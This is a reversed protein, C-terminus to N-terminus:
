AYTMRDIDRCNISCYDWVGTSDYYRDKYCGTRNCRLSVSHPSTFVINSTNTSPTMFGNIKEPSEYTRKIEPTSSFLVKPSPGSKKPQSSPSNVIHLLAKNKPLDKIFYNSVEYCQPCITCKYISPSPHSYSLMCRMCVSDGCPLVLPINTQSNYEQGCKTCSLGNM